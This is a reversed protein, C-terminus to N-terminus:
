NCNCKHISNSGYCACGKGNQEFSNNILEDFITKFEIEEFPINRKSMIEKLLCFNLCTTEFLIKVNLNQIQSSFINMEEIKEIDM